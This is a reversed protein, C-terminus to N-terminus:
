YAPEDLVVEDLLWPEDNKVNNAAQSVPWAVVSDEDAPKLLGKLKAV